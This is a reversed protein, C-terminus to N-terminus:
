LNKADLDREVVSNFGRIIARYFLPANMGVIYSIAESLGNRKTVRVLVVFVALISWLLSWNYYRRNLVLTNRLYYYVKAPTFPRKSVDPHLHLAKTVSLVKGSLRLRFFYDVEDGSMFFKSDVNGVQHVAAMDILAGNFFHAFPYTGDASVAELEKLLQVKRPNGFIVPLGQSNLVPFPFVFEEPADEKVVVSSACVVGPLLAKELVSLANKDPYGDDDMLWIADFGEKLASRICRNWGGASGLNEQTIFRTGRALLMKETEDTSANNVVLIGDAKRSQSDIHDLCRQLLACRNHTVVAALVKM